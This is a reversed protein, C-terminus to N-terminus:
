YGMMPLYRQKVRLFVVKTTKLHLENTQWIDEAINIPTM